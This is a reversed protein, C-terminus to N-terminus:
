IVTRFTWCYQNPLKAYTVCVHYPWIIVISGRSCNSMM